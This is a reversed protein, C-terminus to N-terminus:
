GMASPCPRTVSQPMSTNRATVSSRAIEAAALRNPTDGEAMDCCNVASSAAMPATRTSREARGMPRVGAPVMNRRWAWVMRFASASARLAKAIASRDPSVVSRSPM